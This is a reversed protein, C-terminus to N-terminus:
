SLRPADFGPHAEPRAGRGPFPEGDLTDRRDFSPGPGSVTPIPRSLTEPLRSVSM